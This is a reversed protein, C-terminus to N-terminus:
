ESSEGNRNLEEQLYWKLTNELGSDITHFPEWAYKARFKSSNIAYRFDHGKRDPVLKTKLEIGKLKERIKEIIQINSFREHSSINYIGESSSDNVVKIIGRVCDSVHIWERVNTGSGYIPIEQGKLAYSIVKPIFKELNQRPGYNNSCRLITSKLGDTISYATILLEAAAKSASYPSSTHFASQENFPEGTTSGYVEDTSIHIFRLGPKGICELVLNLTGEINTKLFTNPNELSNDVHSEAAFHVVVDFNANTFLNAVALRNTIDFKFFKIKEKVASLNELSGAYTLADVVTVQNRQDRIIQSVFESGILGAGGTVLIKM